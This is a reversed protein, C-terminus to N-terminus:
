ANCYFNAGFLKRIDTIVHFHSHVSDCLLWHEGNHTNESKYVLHNYLHVDAKIIPLDRIDLSYINTNLQEEIAPIEIFSVRKNFECECQVCLETAKAIVNPKDYENVRTKRNGINYSALLSFWFCHDDKNQLTIFTKRNIICNLSEDEVYCGGSPTMSFGFQISSGGLGM